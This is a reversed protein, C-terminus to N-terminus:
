DLLGVFDNTPNCERNPTIRSQAIRRTTLAKNEDDKKDTDCLELFAGDDNFQATGEFVVTTWAIEGERRQTPEVGLIGTNEM